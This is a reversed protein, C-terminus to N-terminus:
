RVPGADVKAELVRQVDPPVASLFNYGTLKELQAVSVRYEGWQHGRVADDNPMQVAIVRTAPTLRSLDSTGGGPLVVIMKWMWRPVVVPHAAPGIATAPGHEGTGGQGAPGAILLLEAGRAVLTRAYEELDKWPGQNNGPAQPVINTCYFTAANEAPSADRDDSPCLHGRDFGSGSYDRTQVRYWGAPLAPDPSFQKTREARGKWRRSLHWSVWNATNKTRNYSLVYEPRRLLWNDASAPDAAATSPNGLTLHDPRGARSPASPATPAPAPTPLNRSPPAKAVDESPLVVADAASVRFDDFNLRGGEGGAHRLEFRLPGPRNVLLSVPRLGGKAAQQTAGVQTWSRGADTSAFLQWPAGADTGYTGVRVSVTAVPGAVDFAMRARGDPQLRLAARGNHQDKASAGLLAGDLVWQGTTLAVTALAYGPKTGTDFTELLGNAPAPKQTNPASSPPNPTTVRAPRDCGALTLFSLLLLPPLLAPFRNPM